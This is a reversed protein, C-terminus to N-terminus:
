KLLVNQTPTIFPSDLLGTKGQLESHQEVSPYTDGEEVIPDQVVQEIELEETPNLSEESSDSQRFSSSVITVKKKIHPNPVPSMAFGSKQRSLNM